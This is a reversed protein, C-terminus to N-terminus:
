HEPGDPGNSLVQFGWPRLGELDAHGGERPGYDEDKGRIWMSGAAKEVWTLISGM